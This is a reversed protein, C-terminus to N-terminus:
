SGRGSAEGEYDLDRSDGLVSHAERKVQNEVMARVLIANIGKAAWAGAIYAVLAGILARKCCVASSLRSMRAIFGLVFFCVVAIKMAISRVHLPM